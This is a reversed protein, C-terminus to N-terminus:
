RKFKGMLQAEAIIHGEMEELLAKKTAGPKLDLIADLAYLKFYYRHAGGPPPCPGGYGVRRFDTM